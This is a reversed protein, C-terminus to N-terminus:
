IRIIMVLEWSVCAFECMSACTMLLCVCVSSISLAFSCLKNTQPHSLIKVIDWMSNPTSYKDRSHDQVYISVVM